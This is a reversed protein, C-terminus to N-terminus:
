ITGRVTFVFNRGPDSIGSAFRMYHHDLINEIAFQVNFNNSIKYMFNANITYWSPTGYSLSAAKDLNDVGGYVDFDEAKKRVNYNSNLEIMWKKLNLKLTTSGFLPAISPMPLDEDITRGKTYTLFSELTFKSSLKAILGLNSGYIYAQGSNVNAITKVNVGDYMMSDVGITLQYPSRMIYDFVRTYYFDASLMLNKNFLFRSVNIEANIVYEPELATNPVTLLDNKERVKGIDDINPSRFGTSIHSKLIWNDTPKHTFGLSGTLANNFLSIESEPLLMYADDIWMANMLTSTWRLGFNFTSKEDIVRRMDSYVAFSSYDSGGDPYRTQVPFDGELGIVENGSVVLSRGLSNSKVKNFTLETGYSIDFYNIKASFDVNLSFVDVSENRFTKDLSGFKRQMRSEKINQYAFTFASEEMWKEGISSNLKTSIFLREQPGYYWEAWKLGDAKPDTLADFRPIDSSTSYQFNFELENKEGLKFLIKQLVDLQNYATNKQLDPNSNEVPSDSYYHKTNNSYQYVKGWDSFGHPRVKGMKLDNFSGYSISTFSGFKSNNYMADGHLLLGTNATSFTSNVNVEWSENGLSPRKTYFNIIGGLGDSGYKVSSPGYIVETREISGHDVTLANQLHGSRYIANNMRVGDLVLLVRNAEFGRIVPSGGGMQSKQVTIGPTRALLDPTSQPNIIKIDNSSIVSIKEAVRNLDTKTNTVSIVVEPLLDNTRTLYVVNGKKLLAHKKFFVFQYSIHEIILEEDDGFVDINVKGNVDSLRVRTQGDDYVFVNDIAQKTDNDLITIIQSYSSTSLLM